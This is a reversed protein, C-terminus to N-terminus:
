GIIPIRHIIWNILWLVFQSSHVLVIITLCSLVISAPVILDMMGLMGSIGDVAGTLGKPLSIVPILNIIWILPEFVINLIFELLM